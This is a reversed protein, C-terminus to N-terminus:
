WPMVRIGENEKLFTEYYTNKTLFFIKAEPKLKVTYGYTRRNNYEKFFTKFEDGLYLKMAGILKQLSKNFFIYIYRKEIDVDFANKTSVIGHTKTFFAIRYFVNCTYLKGICTDIPEYGNYDDGYLVSIECNGRDICHNLKETICNHITDECGILIIYILYAAIIKNIAIGKLNKRM